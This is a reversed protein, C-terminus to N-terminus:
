VETRYKCDAEYLEIDGPKIVYIQCFGCEYREEEPITRGDKYKKARYICKKCAVCRNFLSNDTLCEKEGLM